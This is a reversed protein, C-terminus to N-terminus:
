PKIPNETFDPVHTRFGGNAYPKILNGSFKPEGSATKAKDLRAQGHAASETPRPTAGSFGDLDGPAWKRVGGASFFDM